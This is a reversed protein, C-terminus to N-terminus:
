RRSMKIFDRVNVKDVDDNTHDADLELKPMPARLPKKLPSELKKLESKMSMQASSRNSSNSM